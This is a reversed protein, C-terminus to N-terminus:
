KVIEECFQIGKQILWIKLMNKFKHIIVYKIDVPLMNYCKPGLFLISRKGSSTKMRPIILDTPRRRTQHSHEIPQTLMPRKKTFILIRFIFLQRVNLIGTEFFLNTSPYRRNKNNLLRLIYKQVKYLPNIYTINTGGWALIGYCIVSEVLAHYVMKLIRLPLCRKLMKLRFILKRLKNTTTLIHKDWRLLDDVVIGLYKIQDARDIHPCQCINKQRDCQHLKLTQLNIKNATTLSFILFKTKKINLSLLNSNLWSTIKTLESEAKRTVNEWSNDHFLIVTDDAFSIIKANIKQSWLDNVYILFLIPGLVTGQPVGFKVVKERSCEDGIKVVQKRNTLYSRFWDLAVGRVGLAEIKKLLIEHSVTDFAKALDLFVAMCKKNENINSYVTKTFEFIADETSKNKQFGFQNESLINNKTFFGILRIKMLKELVKAINNTLSIPRYNEILHKDGGKFLPRIIAKKLQDPFIGKIFSLNFIHTLPKSIESKIFKLLKSDFGDLGGASNSKLSQITLSVEKEVTPNLFFSVNVNNPPRYENLLNNINTNTKIAIDEAMKEGVTSLYNNSHDLIGLPNTNVDVIKDDIKLEYIENDSRAKDTASNITNWIKKSNNGANNIENSYYENKTRQILINLLNRYRRYEEQLYINEPYRKRRINLEDRTKIAAVLGRTIWPKIPMRSKKLRFRHTHKEIYKNLTAYFEQYSEVVEQNTIVNNWEEQKLDNLLTVYNISKGMKQSKNHNPKTKFNEKNEIGLITFFHDTIESEYIIPTLLANNINTCIHDICSSSSNTVRTPKKICQILNYESLLNLYEDVQYHQNPGLTNINMDGAIIIPHGKISILTNSLDEIFNTIDHLQPSRYTAMIYVIEKNTKLKLLLANAQRFTPEIVTVSYKDKVYVVVGDNQLYNNKTFYANYGNLSRMAQNDKVWCESLIIVDFNVEIAELEVILEDINKSISRINTNLIRINCNNLKMQMEHSDNISIDTAEQYNALEDLLNWMTTTKTINM